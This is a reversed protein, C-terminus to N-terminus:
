PRPPCRCSAAGRPKRCKDYALRDPTKPGHPPQTDQRTQIREPPPRRVLRVRVSKIIATPSAHFLCRGQGLGSRRFLVATGPVRQCERADRERFHYSAECAIGKVNVHARTDLHTRRLRPRCTRQENPHPHANTRHTQLRHGNCRSTSKSGVKPPQSLEHRPANEQKKRRGGGGGSAAQVHIVGASSFWRPVTLPAVGCFVSYRIQRLYKATELSARTKQKRDGM